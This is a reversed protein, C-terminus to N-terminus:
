GLRAGLAAFPTAAIVFVSRFVASERVAYALSPAASYYARTARRGMASKTLVTDRFARLYKVAASNSGFAAKSPCTTTPPSDPPVYPETTTLYTSIESFFHRFSAFNDINQAPNNCDHVTGNSLMGFVRFTGDGFFLPSGSSGAETIGQDWHVKTQNSVPKNCLWDLCANVNIETVTGEAIKMPTGQPHHAGFVAEGVVPTRTDWGLWARGYAGIPVEGVTFFAGDLTANTKLLEIGASRPVTSLVPVGGGACSAARYDWCVEIQSADVTGSVCHNATIMYPDREATNPNNLLTGTCQVQGYGDPIILMGVGTSVKQFTSDTECAAHIPCTFGPTLSKELSVFFHSLAELQLSPLSGDPSRLMLVATDGLITPLWHRGDRNSYPGFARDATPDLVWAEQGAVLGSLDVLLRVALADTSTIAALFTRYSDDAFGADFVRGAELGIAYGEAVQCAPGSEAAKAALADNWGQYESFIHQSFPQGLYAAVEDAPISENAGASKSPPVYVYDAYEAASPWVLGAVALLALLISRM